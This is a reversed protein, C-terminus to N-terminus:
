KRNPAATNLANLFSRSESDFGDDRVSILLKQIEPKEPFLREAYMKRKDPRFMRFLLELLENQLEYDGASEIAEGM